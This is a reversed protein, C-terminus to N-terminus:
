ICFIWPTAVLVVVTLVAMTYPVAEGMFWYLQGFFGQRTYLHTLRDRYRFISIFAVVGYDNVTNNIRILHFPASYIIVHDCRDIVMGRSVNQLVRMVDQLLEIPYVGHINPNELDDMYKEWPIFEEDNEHDVFPSRFLTSKKMPYTVLSKVIARKSDFDVSEILKKLDIPDQETRAVLFLSVVLCILAFCRM